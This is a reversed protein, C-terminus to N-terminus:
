EKKAPAAPTNGASTVAQDYLALADDYIEVNRRERDKMLWDDFAAEGRAQAMNQTLQSEVEEFRAPRPQEQNLVKVAAAAGELVIPESWGKGVRGGFAVDEIPPSYTGRPILGTRGGNAKSRMDFSVDKAVDAESEGRKIRRLAEKIVDVSPNTLILMDVREPLMIADPTAAATSDFHARVDEPTVDAAQLFRSHLTEIQVQEKLREIGSKIAPDDGLKRAEAEAYALEQDVQNTRILEKLGSRPIRSPPRSTVPQAAMADVYDGLTWNRGSFTALPVAREEDTVPPLFQQEAPVKDPDMAAMRDIAAELVDIGHDNWAFGAKKELEASFERLRAQEKQRRVDNRLQIRENELTDQKKAVREDVRLIHVGFLTEFPESITGPEQTFARSQFDPLTRSWLIEGLSGDRRKSAQDLSYKQAADAFTIRGATIDDYVKKATAMDELLIHSAKVSMARHKYLDEVEAGQVDVKSEIETRYLTSLMDSRRKKEIAALVAPDTIGGLRAAEALIIRQNVLDNAFNRKAELTSIDPRNPPTIKNWADSFDGLTVQIDGASAVVKDLTGKKKGGCGGFAAPVLLALVVATRTARFM